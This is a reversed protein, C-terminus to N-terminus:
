PEEASHVPSVVLRLSGDLEWEGWGRAHTIVVTYSLLNPGGPTGNAVVSRQGVPVDPPPGMPGM